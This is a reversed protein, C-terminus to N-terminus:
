INKVDLPGYDSRDYKDCSETRKSRYDILSNYRDDILRDVYFLSLNDKDNKKNLEERRCIIYDIDLTKDYEKRTFPDILIKYVKNLKNIPIINEEKLEDYADQIQKYTCLQTLHLIEYYTPKPHHINSM